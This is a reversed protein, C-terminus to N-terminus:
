FFVMVFLIKLPIFLYVTHPTISASTSIKEQYLKEFLLVVPIDSTADAIAIASDDYSKPSISIKWNNPINKGSIKLYYPDGLNWFFAELTVKEGAKVSVYDKKIFDAAFL